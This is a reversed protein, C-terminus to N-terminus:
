PVMQPASGDRRTRGRGRGRSSLKTRGSRRACPPTREDGCPNPLTERRELDAPGASTPRHRPAGRPAGAPAPSAWRGSRAPWEDRGCAIGERHLGDLDVAGRRGLRPQRRARELAGTARRGTPEPRSAVFWTPATLTTRSSSDTAHEARGLLVAAAERVLDDAGEGDRGVRDAGGILGDLAGVEDDGRRARPALGRCDPPDQSAGPAVTTEIAEVSGSCRSTSTSTIRRAVAITASTGFSTAASVPSMIAAASARTSNAVFSHESSAITWRRIEGLGAGASIM